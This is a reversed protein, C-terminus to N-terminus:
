AGWEAPILFDSSPRFTATSKWVSASRSSLPHQGLWQSTEESTDRLKASPLGSAWWQALRTQGRGSRTRISVIASLEKEWASQSLDIKILTKPMEERRHGDLIATMAAAHDSFEKVWGQAAASGNMRLTLADHRLRCRRAIRPLPRVAPLRITVRMGGDTADAHVARMGRLSIRLSTDSMVRIQAV